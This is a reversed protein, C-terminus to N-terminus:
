SFPLCRSVQLNNVVPLLLGAAVCTTHARRWLEQHHRSARPSAHGCPRWTCGSQEEGRASCLSCRSLRTRPEKQQSPDPGPLQSTDRSVYQSRPEASHPPFHASSRFFYHTKPLPFSPLFSAARVDLLYKFVGYSFTGSLRLSLLCSAQWSTRGM